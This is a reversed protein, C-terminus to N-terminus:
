NGAPTRPSRDDGRGLYHGVIATPAGKSDLEFEIRFDDMGDLVFLRGGAPTLAYRPGEGRRYYLKGNEFTVLRDQYQGAFSKLTDPAIQAPQRRAKLTELLWQRAQRTEPDAEKQALKEVALFHATELAKDQPTEIDPVVGVGEWNTKTIPNVARGFPVSVGVRLNPFPHFDTPHAGGGTTEGVLTARKLNKMNYSFEEAASFTRRSTLIYLDVDAMRKGPVWASSWFQDTSDKARVYFSNLHTPEELFFSSILQIMSPDGGGNRRLDIIVADSNALFNMAAVATDGGLEAPFFGRLDLYGVNGSLRELKEFGFNDRRMRQRMRERRERRAQDSEEPDPGGQPHDPLPHVGLHLDHSVSRLDETLRDAFVDLEEIGDYAGDALRARVHAAMKAAVEPFVYNQDIAACVQDVIESRREPTLRDDVSAFAQGAWGAASTVALFVWFHLRAIKMLGFDRRGIIRGTRGAFEPRVEM